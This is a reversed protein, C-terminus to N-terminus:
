RTKDQNQAKEQEKQREQEKQKEKEKIKAFEEEGKDGYQAKILEAARENKDEMQNFKDRENPDQKELKDILKDTAKEAAQDYSGSQHQEKFYDIQYDVMLSKLDEKKNPEVTQTHKDDGKELNKEPESKDAEHAKKGIEHADNLMEIKDNLNSKTKDEHEGTDNKVITEEQVSPFKQTATDYMEQIYGSASVFLEATALLTGVKQRTERDILPKPELNEKDSKIQKLEDKKAEEQSNLTLILGANKDPERELDNRKDKIDKLEDEVMAQRKELDHYEKSYM